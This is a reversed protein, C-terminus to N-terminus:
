STLRFAWPAGSVGTTLTIVPPQGAALFEERHAHRAAAVAADPRATRGPQHPTRAGDFPGTRPLAAVVAILDGPPHGTAGGLYVTVYIM